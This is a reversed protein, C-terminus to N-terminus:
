EKFTVLGSYAIKGWSTTDVTGQAADVLFFLYLNKGEMYSATDAAYNFKRHKLNIKIQGAVEPFNTTAFNANIPMIKDYLLTAQAWDFQQIAIQNVVTNGILPLTTQINSSTVSTPTSGSTVTEQDHLYVMCRLTGSNLASSDLHARYNIVIKDVYIIQGIRNGEGTGQSLNYLLNVGYARGCIAAAQEGATLYRKKEQAAIAKKKAILAVQKKQLLNLGRYGGTNM